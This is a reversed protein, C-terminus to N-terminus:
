AHKYSPAKPNSSRFPRMDRRFVETGNYIEIATLQEAEWCARAMVRPVPRGECKRNGYLGSVAFREAHDAKGVIHSQRSRYSRGLSQWMHHGLWAANITNEGNSHSRSMLEECRSYSSFNVQYAEGNVKIEGTVENNNTWVSAELQMGSPVDLGPTIEDALNKAPKEANKRAIPEQHGEDAHGTGGCEFQHGTSASSPRSAVQPHNPRLEAAAGASPAANREGLALQSAGDGVSRLECVVPSGVPSGPREPPTALAVEDAPSAVPVHPALGLSRRISRLDIEAMRETENRKTTNQETSSALDSLCNAKERREGCTPLLIAVDQACTPSSSGVDHDRASSMGTAVGNNAYRDTGHAMLKPDFAQPFSAILDVLINGDNKRATQCQRASLMATKPFERTLYQGGVRIRVSEVFSDRQRQSLPRGTLLAKVCQAMISRDINDTRASRTGDGYSQAVKLALKLWQESKKM